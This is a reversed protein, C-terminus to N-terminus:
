KDKYICFTGAFKDHWTQKYPSLWIHFISFFLFGACFSSMWDSQNEPPELESMAILGKAELFEPNFYLLSSVFLASVYYAFYVLFRKMSQESTIKPEYDKNVLTIGLAMKGLTGAYKWEMIPKYFFQPLSLLIHVWLIKWDSMNFVSLLVIPLFVLFDVVVAGFRVWFGAYQVKAQNKELIDEDIIGQEM